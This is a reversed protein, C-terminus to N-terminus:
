VTALPDAMEPITVSFTPQQVVSNTVTSKVSSGGGKSLLGAMFLKDSNTRGIQASGSLTINGKVTLNQTKGTAPKFWSAGDAVINGGVVMNESTFSGSGGNIINGVILLQSSVVTAAGSNNFNGGVNMPNGTMNISAGNTVNGGINFAGAVAQGAGSTYLDKVIDIQKAVTGTGSLYIGFAGGLNAGGRIKAWNMKMTASGNQNLADTATSNVFVGGDVIVEAAGTNTVAGSATKNLALM